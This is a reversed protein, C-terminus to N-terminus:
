PPWSCKSFGVREARQTIPFYLAVGGDPMPVEIVEQERYSRGAVSGDIRQAGLIPSPMADPVPELSREEYDALLVTASQAGM